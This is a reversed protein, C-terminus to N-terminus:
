VTLRRLSTKKKAFETLVIHTSQIRSYLRLKKDCFIIFAMVISQLYSNRYCRHLIAHIPFGNHLCKECVTANRMLIGSACYMRFNHITQVSPIKKFKCAWFVSSTIIPVTNHVHVIDPKLEKLRKLAKLFSKISWISQIGYFFIQFFNLKKFSNNNEIWQHVQHGAKRLLESEIRVVSDEGGLNQYTNHIQLIKMQLSHVVPRSDVGAEPPHYKSHM